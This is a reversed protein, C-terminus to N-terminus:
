QLSVKVKSVGANASMGTAVDLLYVVHGHPAHRLQTPGHTDETLATASNVEGRYEGPLTAERELGLVIVYGRSASGGIMGGVSWAELTFPLDSRGGELDVQGRGKAYKIVAGGEGMRFWGTARIGLQEAQQRFGPDALLADLETELRAQDVRDLQLDALQGELRVRLDDMSVAGLESAAPDPPRPPADDCATLSVTAALLAALPLLRGRRSM